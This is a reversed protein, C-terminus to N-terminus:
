QLEDSVTSCAQPLRIVSCSKFLANEALNVHLIGYVVRYHGLKSMFIVCIAALTTVCLCLCVSLSVVM